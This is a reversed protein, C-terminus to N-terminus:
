RDRGAPDLGRIINFTAQESLKVRVITDDELLLELIEGGLKTRSVMELRATVATKPRSM